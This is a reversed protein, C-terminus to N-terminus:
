LDSLSLFKIQRKSALTQLLEDAAFALDMREPDPRILILEPEFILDVSNTCIGEEEDPTLPPRGEAERRANLLDIFGQRQWAHVGPAQTYLVGHDLFVTGIHPPQVGNKDAKLPHPGILEVQM